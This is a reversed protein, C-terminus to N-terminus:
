KLEPKVNGYEWPKGIFPPAAQFQLEAGPKMKKTLEVGADVM